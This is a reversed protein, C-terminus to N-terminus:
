VSSFDCNSGGGGEREKERSGAKTWVDDKEMGVVGTTTAWEAALVSFLSTIKVWNCCSLLLSCLSFRSRSSRSAITFCNISSLSSSRLGMQARSANPPFAKKTPSKEHSVSTDLQFIEFSIEEDDMPFPAELTNNKLASTFANSAASVSLFDFSLDGVDGLLDLSSKRNLVGERLLHKIPEKDGREYRSLADALAEDGSIILDKLVGKQRTEIVGEELLESASRLRSSISGSRSRKPMVEMSSSLPPPPRTSLMREFVIEDFTWVLLFVVSQACCYLAYVDEPVLCLNM